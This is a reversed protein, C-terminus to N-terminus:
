QKSGKEYEQVTLATNCRLRAALGVLFFYHSNVLKSSMPSFEGFCGGGSPVNLCCEESGPQKGIKRGTVLAAQPMM